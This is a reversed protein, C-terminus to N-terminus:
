DHKTGNGIEERWAMEDIGVLAMCEEWTFAGTDSGIDVPYICGCDVATCQRTFPANGPELPAGCYFCTGYHSM